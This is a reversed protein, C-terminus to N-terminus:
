MLKNEKRKGHNYLKVVAMKVGTVKDSSLVNRFDNTKMLLTDLGAKSLKKILWKQDYGEYEKIFRHIGLVIFRQYNRKNDGLSQKIIHLVTWLDSEGGKNYVDEIAGLAKIGGDDRKQYDIKLGVSEVIDNIAKAEPNNSLIKANGRDLRDARTSNNFYDFAAAEEQFTMGEFVLCEILKIGLNKMAEVRHQGDFIYYFGDSRESVHILGVAIPDFEKTIKRVIHLKVPRQYVDYKLKGIPLTIIRKEKNKVLQLAEM